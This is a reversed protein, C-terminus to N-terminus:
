MESTLPNKFIKEINKLKKGNYLIFPLCICIKHINVAYKKFKNMKTNYINKQKKGKM